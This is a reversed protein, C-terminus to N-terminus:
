HVIELRRGRGYLNLLKSSDKHRDLILWKKKILYSNYDSEPLGILENM